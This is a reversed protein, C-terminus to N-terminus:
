QVRVLIFCNRFIFSHICCNSLDGSCVSIHIFSIIKMNPSDGQVQHSEICWFFPLPYSYNATQSVCQRHRHTSKAECWWEAWATRESLPDAWGARPEPWVWSPVREDLVQSFRSLARSLSLKALCSIPRWALHFCHTSQATKGCCNETLQSAILTCWVSCAKNVPWCVFEIRSKIRSKSSLIVFRLAALLLAIRLGTISNRYIEM